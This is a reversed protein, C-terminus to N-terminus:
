LNICLISEGSYFDCLPHICVQNKVVDFYGHMNKLSAVFTEVGNHFDDNGYLGLGIAASFAILFM